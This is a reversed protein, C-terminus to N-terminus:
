LCDVCDMKIAADIAFLLEKATCPKPLFAQIGNGTAEAVKENSMLGSIAIIKVQPNLQQLTAITDIGDMVPMMIDLLVVKIQEQYQVYLSLAEVGDSATLVQYNYTELSTQTIERIAVEDDVVLILDGAGMLIEVEALLSTEAIDVAPLHVKFETGKGLESYVNVFGGHSKVIGIVTSLGLGTGKGLEKTTFFPEFIRELVEPKIGTGSDAVTLLIYDGVQAEVNMRAYYDDIRVNQAKLSLLGGDPMADRANVVLNMLVQHLQTGDGSVAWLESALDSVIEISKPFTQKAIHTVELILHKLQVSTRQGELGKAFSLVQKILGAGRKINTELTGLLQQEQPFKLLLLQVAMLVPALVNNLDHAIGGALTGISEMRQARLFQAELKVKETIDTNVTLISKPQQHEDRVLTWRSEVIIEGGHKNVQNLKGQWEGAVVVTELAELIQPLNSSLFQNVDQNLVEAVLWGYVREASKNWFIIKNDMSRVVIADTAVDLLAAQERIQQESRKRDSIDRTIALQVCEKTLPNCLPVAHTELWVSRGKCSVLEFELSGKKGLNCVNENLTQFQQRYQKAILSYVSKGIVVDASDAEIMALGAANMELLTGDAAVIKVCEPEADVITRLRDNSERLAEEVQRRGTVDRSSAHIETIEGTKADQISRSITELWIYNGECNRIRYTVTDNGSVDLIGSHSKKIEALDDPHFFDYANRGILDEPAYGLIGQSAPSAYLYVGEVTHRSIMDTSNEALLRFREENEQRQNAAQQRKSLDRNIFYYLLGLLILNLLTAVTSTAINKQFSATSEGSRQKLLQYETTKMQTILQRIEDTAKRGKGSEILQQAKLTGETKQLALVEKLSSLRLNTKQELTVLRKQQTPNDALLKQLNQIHSSHQNIAAFYPELYTVDAALLYGRQGAESDKLSSFTIELEALVQHTRSVIQENERLQRTNFYSVAGNTVVLVSAIGIVATLQKTIFKNM